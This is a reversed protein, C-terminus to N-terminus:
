PKLPGLEDGFLPPRDQSCLTKDNRGGNRPRSHQDINEGHILLSDSATNSSMMKASVSSRAPHYSSSHFGSHRDVRCRSDHNYGQSRFPNPILCPFAPLDQDEFHRFRKLSFHCRSLPLRPFNTPPTPSFTHFEERM